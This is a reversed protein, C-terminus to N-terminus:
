YVTLLNEAFDCHGIAFFDYPKITFKGILGFWTTVCNGMFCSEYRTGFFTGKINQNLIKYATKPASLHLKNKDSFARGPRFQFIDVIWGVCSEIRFVKAWVTKSEQLHGDPIKKLAQFQVERTSEDQEFPDLRTFLIDRKHNHSDPAHMIYSLSGIM